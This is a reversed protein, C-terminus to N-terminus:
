YGLGLEQAEATLADLHARRAAEDDREFRMLDTFKIRRHTGVKRYEIKGAELLGILYPRSVNLYDAAQQTTLEANIPVITVANGLAMHGLIELLLEYAGRPVVVKVAESGDDPSVRVETNGHFHGVSELVRLAHRAAEAVEPSPAELLATGM